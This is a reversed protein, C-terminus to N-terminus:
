SKALCITSHFLKLTYKGINKDKKNANLDKLSYRRRFTPDITALINDTVNLINLDFQKEISYDKLNLTKCAREKEKL